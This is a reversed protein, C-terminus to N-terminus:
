NYELLFWQLAEKYMGREQQVEIKREEARPTKQNSLNHLIKDYEELKYSIYEKLIPNKEDILLKGFLYEMKHKYQEKGPIATIIVYFHGEEKLIQEKIIRFGSAHLFHRLIEEDRQPQLILRDITLLIDPRRELIKCILLGGMGAIILTDVEGMKLKSVGDSQRTEIVDAAGYAKINNQAREIPGKGIDMAIGKTIQNKKYLYIPVYGHDTGIDAIASGKSVEDAIAQLRRSLEM